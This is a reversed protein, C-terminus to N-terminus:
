EALLRAIFREILTEEFPVDTIGVYRVIGRTDVVVAWADDYLALAPIPENRRRGDPAWSYATEYVALTGPLRLTRLFAVSDYVAEDRPAVPATDAIFGRTQALSVIAFRQAGFRTQYRQLTVGFSPWWWDRRITRVSHILTVRGSAPLSDRSATSDAFRFTPVIPTAPRGIWAYARIMREMARPMVRNGTDLIARAAAVDRTRLAIEARYEFAQMTLYAMVARMATDSLTKWAAIVAQADSDAAADDRRLRATRVLALHALMRAKASAPQPLQDLRAVFDRAMAWRPPRTRMCDQVILSLVWARAAVSAQLSALYREATVRAATDEGANLQVQFVNLQQEPSLPRTAYARACLRVSDRVVTLLTDREVQYAATTDYWDRALLRMVPEHSQACAAPSFREFAPTSSAGARQAKALGQGGALLIALLVLRCVVYGRTM